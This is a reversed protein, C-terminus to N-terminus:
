LKICLYLYLQVDSYKDRGSIKTEENTQKLELIISSLKM